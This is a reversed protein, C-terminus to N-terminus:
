KINFRIYGRSNRTKLIINRSTCYNTVIQNAIEETSAIRISERIQFPPRFYSPVDDQPTLMTAFYCWLTMTLLLNFIIGYIIRKALPRVMKWILEYTYCYYSYTYLLIILVIPGINLFSEWCTSM